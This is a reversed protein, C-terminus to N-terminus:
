EHEIGKRGAILLVLIVLMSIIVMNSSGFCILVLATVLLGCIGSVVGAKTKFQEILLVIFLATLAFDLGEAKNGLFDGCLAGIVTGINWYIFDLFTVGFYFHKPKVGEPVDVTSAISFTEDSLGFILFPKARGVDKYKKLLPIGYFLHRASIMVGLVFAGIPDFAQALVPVAAFELAGSFIIISMVSPLWVAFGKTRMVLGFAIGLFIYGALVPITHVFIKNFYEKKSLEIRKEQLFVITLVSM